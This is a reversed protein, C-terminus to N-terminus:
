KPKCPILVFNHVEKALAVREYLIILGIIECYVQIGSAYNYSIAVGAHVKVYLGM